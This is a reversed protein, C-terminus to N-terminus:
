DTYTILPCVKRKKAQVVAALLYLMSTNSAATPRRHSAWRFARWLLVIPRVLMLVLIRLLAVVITGSWVLVLMYAVVLPVALSAAMCGVVLWFYVCLSKPPEWVERVKQTAKADGMWKPALWQGPLPANGWGDVFRYHWSRKSVNM